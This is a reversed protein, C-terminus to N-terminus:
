SRARAADRGNPARAACVVGAAGVLATREPDAAVAVPLPEGLGDAFPVSLLDWALAMAGGVVLRQAGFRRLWPGVAGGLARFADGLVRRALTDGGRARDTITRVDAAPDGGAAAFARRIARTSVVDELPRGDVFLLHVEGDPPVDPGTAVIAGDALFASGIGTGLTLGACRRTGAAAGARWEGLLFADADNVFALRAPAPTIAARLLAGLDVDRLADFKAVGTYRGIGAEYDFPGPVALGWATVPPEVTAAAAALREVIAAAPAAADLPLRHRSLLTWDSTRVAAATVHSGGVELAGVPDPHVDPTM